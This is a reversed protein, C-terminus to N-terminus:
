FEPGGGKSTYSTRGPHLQWSQYFTQAVLAHTTLFGALVVPLKQM